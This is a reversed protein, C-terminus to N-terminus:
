AAVEGKSRAWEDLDERRFRALSGVKGHPIQNLKVWKKVTSEKVQLYEAAEEATLWRDDEKNRTPCM